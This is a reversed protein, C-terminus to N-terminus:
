LIVPIEVRYEKENQCFNVKKQFNYAYSKQLFDNGKKAGHTYDVLRLENTVNLIDGTRGIRISLPHMENGRNHKMANEVSLQLACPLIYGSFDQVDIKIDYANKFRKEMLAIYKRLFNVEDTIPVLEQDNHKLYYRYVDSFNNIFEEAEDPRVKILGSLVSLNNFLFHPELNKQLMKFRIKETEKEVRELQIETKANQRFSLYALTLGSIYLHFIVTTFVFNGVLMNLDTKMGYLLARELSYFLSQVVAYIVVSTLFAGVIRSIKKLKFKESIQWAAFTCLLSLACSVIGLIHTSFRYFNLDGFQKTIHLVYTQITNVGALFLLILLINGILKKKKM